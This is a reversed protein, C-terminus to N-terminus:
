STSHQSRVGYDEKEMTLEKLINQEIEASIIRAPTTRQYRTTFHQPNEKYQKLLMFFRSKKIGLIEQIYKREIENNSYRELLEKVQEPTFRRHVQSMM